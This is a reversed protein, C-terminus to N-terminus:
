KRKFYLFGKLNLSCYGVLSTNKRKSWNQFLPRIAFFNFLARELKNMLVCIKYMIITIMLITLEATKSELAVCVSSM